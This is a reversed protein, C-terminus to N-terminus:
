EEVIWEGKKSSGEWKVLGKKKLNRLHYRVGDSSLGLKEGLEKKTIKRDKKILELIKEEPPTIKGGKRRFRTIFLGAYEEFEATPEKSLILKIGRGWREVFQVRHFM